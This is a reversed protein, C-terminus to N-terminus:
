ANATPDIVRVGTPEFDRANRTIIAMGHELATAAILADAQGITFGQRACRDTLRGWRVAIARDIALLRSAFLHETAALWDELETHRTGPELKAIGRSLEGLTIVSLYLDSEDAQMLYQKVGAHGGPRRAESLVNTDIIAKM